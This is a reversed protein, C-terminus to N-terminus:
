DVLLGCDRPLARFFAARDPHTEEEARRTALEIFRERGRRSLSQLSVSIEELRKVCIDPDLLEDGVGEFFMISDMVTAMLVETDDPV